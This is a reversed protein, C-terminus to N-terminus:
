GAEAHEHRHGDCDGYHAVYADNLKIGADIDDLQDLVLM